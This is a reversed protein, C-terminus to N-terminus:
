IKMNGTNGWTGNLLQRHWACVNDVENSHLKGPWLVLNGNVFNYWLIYFLNFYIHNTTTSNQAPTIPPSPLLHSYLPPYYLITSLPGTRARCLTLPVSPRPGLRLQCEVNAATVPGTEVCIDPYRCVKGGHCSRQLVCAAHVLSSSTIPLCHNHSASFQWGSHEGMTTPTTPALTSLTLPCTQQRREAAALLIRVFLASVSGSCWPWTMQHCGSTLGACQATIVLYHLPLHTLIHIPYQLRHWTLVLNQETEILPGGGSESSFNSTIVSCLWM